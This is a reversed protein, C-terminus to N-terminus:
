GESGGGTPAEQEKPLEKVGIGAGEGVQEGIHGAAFAQEDIRDKLLVLAIEGQNAFQTDLQNGRDVGVGVGVVHGSTPQHVDGSATGNAQRGSGACVVHGQGQDMTIADDETATGQLDTGGGAMGVPADAKHEVVLAHGEGTIGKQYATAAAAVELLAIGVGQPVGDGLLNKGQGIGAQEVWPVVVGAAGHGRHCLLLSEVSAQTPIGGLAVEHAVHLVHFQGVGVLDGLGQRAVQAGAFRSSSRWFLGPSRHAAAIRAQGFQFWSPHSGM